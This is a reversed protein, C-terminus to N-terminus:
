ADMPQEPLLGFFSPSSGFYTRPAPGDPDTFPNPSVLGPSTSMTELSASFVDLRSAAPKFRVEVRPDMSGRPWFCLLLRRADVPDTVNGSPCPGFFSRRPDFADTAETADTCDASPCTPLDSERRALLMPCDRRLESPRKDFAAALAAVTTTEPAAVDAASNGRIITRRPDYEPMGAGFEVGATSFVCSRSFILAFTPSSKVSFCLIPPLLIEQCIACRCTVLERSTLSPGRLDTEPIEANM